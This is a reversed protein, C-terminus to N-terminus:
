NKKFGPVVEFNRKKKLDLFWRLKKKLDLFWRLNKKLGPVM